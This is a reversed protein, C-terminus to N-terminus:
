VRRRGARPRVAAPDIRLRDQYAAALRAATEPQCHALVRSWIAAADAHYHALRGLDTEAALREAMLRAMEEARAPAPLFFYHQALIMSVPWSDPARAVAEAEIEAALPEGRAVDRVAAYCASEDHEARLTHAHLALDARVRRKLFGHGDLYAFLPELELLLPGMNLWPRGGGGLCNIYSAEAGALAPILFYDRRPIGDTMLHLRLPERAFLSLYAASGASTLFDRHRNMLRIQDEITMTEPSCILFGNERLAEELELEGVLRRRSSPLLRRSLYVPQTSRDAEGAVAAAVARYRHAMREHAAYSIEYLPEPIVVRRLLTPRDLFLIRDDPVGFLELLRRTTGEPPRGRELHMVVQVTPDIDALAWTRALSEILFHGFHGFYWGLYVVEDAVEREPEAAPESFGGLVREGWRQGRRHFQAAPIPRGDRGALGGEFVFRGPTRDAAAVKVTPVFVADEAVTMAPEGGRIAVEALWEALPAMQDDFGHFTFDSVSLRGSM